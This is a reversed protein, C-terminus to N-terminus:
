GNRDLSTAAAIYQRSAAAVTRPRRHWWPAPRLEGDLMLLFAATAIARTESDLAFFERTLVRLGAVDIPPTPATQGLAAFRSLRAFAAVGSEAGPWLWAGAGRSVDVGLAGELERLAAVYRARAGLDGDTLPPISSVARSLATELSRARKSLAGRYSALWTLLAIVATLGAAAAGWAIGPTMALLGTAAVILAIGDLM